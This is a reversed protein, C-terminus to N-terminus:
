RTLVGGNKLFMLPYHFFGVLIFILLVAAYHVVAFVVAESGSPTFLIGTYLSVAERVMKKTNRKVYSLNLLDLNTNKRPNQPAEGRRKVDFCM